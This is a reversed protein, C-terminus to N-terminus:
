EAHLHLRLAVTDISAFLPVETPGAPKQIGAALPCGSLALM